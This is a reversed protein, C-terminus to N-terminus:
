TGRKITHKENEYVDKDTEYYKCLLLISAFIGIFKMDINM